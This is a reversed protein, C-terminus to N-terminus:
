GLQELDSLKSSIDDRLTLSKKLDAFLKTAAPAFADYAEITQKYSSALSDEKATVQQMNSAAKDYLAQETAFNSELEAIKKLDETFFAQLTIKSMKVFESQLTASNELAPISVTNVQSTSDSISNLKFVSLIGILALLLSIGGFGGIIRLAVTLKM